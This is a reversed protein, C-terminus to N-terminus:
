LVGHCSYYSCYSVMYPRLEFGEEDVVSGIEAADEVLRPVDVDRAGLDDRERKHGQQQGRRRGTEDEERGAQGGQVAGPLGEVRGPGGIRGAAPRFVPKNRHLRVLRDLRPEVHEHGRPVPDELLITDLRPADARTEQRRVQAAVRLLQLLGARAVRRESSVDEPPNEFSLTIVIDALHNALVADDLRPLRVKQCRGFETM